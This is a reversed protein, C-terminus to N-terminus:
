TQFQHEFGLLITHLDQRLQEKLVSQVFGLLPSAFRIGRCTRGPLSLFLDWGRPIPFSRYFELIDGHLILFIEAFCGWQPSLEIKKATQPAQPAPFSFIGSSETGPLFPSSNYVHIGFSCSGSRPQLHTEFSSKSFSKQQQQQQQRLMQKINMRIEWQKHAARHRRHQVQSYPSCFKEEGQFSIKNYTTTM